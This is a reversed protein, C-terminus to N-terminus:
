KYRFGVNSCKLNRVTGNEDIVHKFYVAEDEELPYAIIRQISRFVKEETVTLLMENLVFGESADMLYESQERRLVTMDITGATLFEMIIERFIEASPILATREDQTLESDLMRLDLMKQEVLKKLLVRISGSYKEMRERQRQERELQYAEEDFDLEIDEEAAESKRIRKQFELMKEPNFIKEPQGIFLPNFLKDAHELLAADKLIRDYIEGRFPFRQVMTMNSYNELEYDYMQKLDFHQGLIKQHEDLTRGLYSGIMRLNALNEKEKLSFGEASMEKEEFENIKEEIFDRHMQFRERTEMVTNINEEVLNRYEEITYSLANRKITRMAEEIKQSQIRLRRFVNKIDGVAKNYDAKELHLKFLMEHITLKLNNEMEMTSLVMNYGEDTLYYSTRKVGGDQYVVKNDLYRINIDRYERKEYDFAKFYMSTGSNGLVEEVIFRALERSEEYRFSKQYYELNIDEVFLAIDDITCDEEKLSYEMIYLLVTFIMNMQADRTEIGYQKWVKKDFSNGCLICYRGVSEMRRTFDKLFEM